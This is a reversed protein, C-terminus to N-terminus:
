ALSNYMDTIQSRYAYIEKETNIYLSGDHVSHYYELNAPFVYAGGKNLLLWTRLKAEWANVTTFLSSYTSDTSDLYFQRHVIYNGTNIVCEMMKHDKLTGYTQKTLVTPIFDRYDFGNHGNMPITRSPAYVISPAMPHTRIYTAWAEFYALPAFNDSDILAVWEHTALRVVAEKNRFAGLRETNVFIKIKPDTFRERIKAADMGNEDSIVIEHIYPIELYKPLNAELFSWRNMTPICLSLPPIPPAIKVYMADGWGYETMHTIVRKFGRVGLFEDIENMRACGKYVEEINVELYLAKVHDLAKTAGKLALLEVGQIDFNWFDYKRADLNHRQLFTDVTVTTEKTEGVFHVWGHHKSHTGFELVSSSQVNNTLRFTVTDDDKDTVVAKFVNPVGRATAQNVKDQVADVWVMQEKPVGIREYFPLEECEHAGIHLVGKPTIGHDHLAQIVTEQKFLM